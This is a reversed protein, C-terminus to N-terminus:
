LSTVHQQVWETFQERSLEGAALALMVREQEDVNASIEFGNLVLMVELATHGIRKNGDVFPHNSVLFFGLAAAKEILSPYLEVGGFTQHMQAVCSELAPQDRVGTANGAHAVIRAHLVLVEHITLTRM